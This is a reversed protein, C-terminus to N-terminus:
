IFYSTTSQLITLYLYVFLSKNVTLVLLVFPKSWTLILINPSHTLILAKFSLLVFLFYTFVMLTVNIIYKVKKSLHDRAVSIFYETDTKMRSRSKFTKKFINRFNVIYFSSSRSLLITQECSIALM